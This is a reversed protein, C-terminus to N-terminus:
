DKWENIVPFKFIYEAEQATNKGSVFTIENAFDVELNKYGMEILYRFLIM